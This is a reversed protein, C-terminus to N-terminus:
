AATVDAEHERAMAAAAEVAGVCGPCLVGRGVICV